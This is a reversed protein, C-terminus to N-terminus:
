STVTSAQGVREARDLWPKAQLGEFISRAELVVPAVDPGRDKAELWEAYEVLAVGLWLPFAIERFTGIAGRFLHEAADDTPDTGRAEIREGHAMFFRMRRGIPDTRVTTLIEDVKAPDGLALAAELGTVIGEKVCSHALSLAERGELAVEALRL